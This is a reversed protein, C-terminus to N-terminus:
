QASGRTKVDQIPDVKGAAKESTAGLKPLAAQDKLGRAAPNKLGGETQQAAQVLALREAQEQKAIPVQGKPYGRALSALELGVLGAQLDSTIEECDCTMTQADDIEKFITKLVEDPLKGHFLAYVSQKATEKQYTVSPIASKLENIEKAEERREADTKVYYTSPYSVTGDSEIGDYLGWVTMLSREGHECEMGINNLGSELGQRRDQEELDISGATVNSLWLNIIQRIESKLQEQKKMSALLPEPSPHIFEPTTTGLPHRRGHMTGVLIEDKTTAQAANLQPININAADKKILDIPQVGTKYFGPETKPDYMETYFPFNAKLSYAMDSSALNMLCVQYQGIDTLLSESIAFLVFPIVKMKLPVTEGLQKGAEDFFKVEVHGDVIRLFRYRTTWKIPLGTLSDTVLHNERLLLVKFENPESTDDPVWALIDERKFTYVYPRNAAATILNFNDGINARDVYVGVMQMALLEPIVSKVMFSNMSNGLNDVGFKDGNVAAQYSVPGGTRIVDAIRASISNKIETVSAKSIAPCYSVSRRETLSFPDERKSLQILYKDVFKQGGVWADRFLDCCDYDPHRYDIIRTRANNGTEISDAVAQATAQPDEPYSGIMAVMSPKFLLKLLSM